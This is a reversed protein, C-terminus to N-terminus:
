AVFTNSFLFCVNLLHKTLFYVGMINQCDCKAKLECIASIADKPGVLLKLNEIM